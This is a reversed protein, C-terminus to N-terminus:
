PQQRGWFGDDAFLEDVIEELLNLELATDLVTYRKRVMQARLYTQRFRAWDLQIDSPHAPAGVARLMRQLEEPAIIQERLRASLQPWAAKLTEIRQALEDPTVWKALQQTVLEDVLNPVPHLERVRAEMAEESPWASVAADTDLGAVDRELLREYFASVAVTGVAVKFGHSLRRPKIDVGHGEMEWLHSFQHEAGSAPRSSQHAQMALGSMILGQALDRTAEVDHAALAEPRALSTRLPGQVLDWVSPDIVEIQLADALLWDAGATVKGLLDGYGSATMVTPAAAMVTLDSISAAPAPCSLTQKFGEVAISAGFATFGDMSAATGVQMYPRTLEGSARKVIDNLTGGGVAVATADVGALADRLTECNEYQAYLEPEGPFVYPDLTRVGSARLRENVARGAVEMTREDGVVVAAADGFLETFVEGARAIAGEEVVAVKTDTADVLAKEILESM